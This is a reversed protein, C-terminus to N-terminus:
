LQGDLAILGNEKLTSLVLYTYTNRAFQNIYDVLQELHDADRVKVKVLFCTNGTVKHCELVEPLAVLREGMEKIGIDGVPVTIFATLPYGVAKYNLVASYREIVSEDELKKIREKTATTSLDIMRGIQATSLRANKQLLSVIQLDIHDM